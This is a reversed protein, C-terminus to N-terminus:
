AKTRGSIEKVGAKDTKFVHNILWERLFSMLDSTLTAKGATFEQQFKQVKDVLDAHLKKHEALTKLGGKTWIEEERAFHDVTYQLLKGLVDAAVDQGAGRLMAQNLENVYQVLMKHDADVVPHGTIWSPGWELTGGGSQLRVLFDDAVARMTEAQRGLADAEEFVAKASQSSKKAM